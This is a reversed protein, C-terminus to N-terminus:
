FTGAIRGSLIVTDGPAWVESQDGDQLCVTSVDQDVAKVALWTQTGVRLRTGQVTEMKVITVPVTGDCLQQALYPGVGGNEQYSTPPTRERVPAANGIMAGITAMSLVCMALGFISWRKESATMNRFDSIISM